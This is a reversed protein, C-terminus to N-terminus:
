FVFHFYLTISSSGVGHTDDLHRRTYNTGYKKCTMDMLPGYKPDPVLAQQNTPNVFLNHDSNPAVHQDMPVRSNTNPAVQQGAPTMIPGLTSDRVEHQAVSYPSSYPAPQTGPNQTLDQNWSSLTRHPSRSTSSAVYQNRPISFYGDPSPVVTENGSITSRRLLRDQPSPPYFVSSRVPGALPSSPPAPEWQSPLLMSKSSTNIDNSTSHIPPLDSRDSLPVDEISPLVNSEHFDDSPIPSLRDNPDSPPAMGTYNNDSLHELYLASLWLSLHSILRSM